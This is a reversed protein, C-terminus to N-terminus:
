DTGVAAPDPGGGSLSRTLETRRLTATRFDAEDRALGRRGLVPLVVQTLKAGVECARALASRVPGVRRKSYVTVKQGCTVVQYGHQKAIWRHAGLSWFFVHQGHHPFLYYWDPGQGLYKDTGVILFDPGCSLLAGVDEAPNAFHEFVEFSVIAGLGPGLEGEFGEAFVNQTFRDHLRGDYGLDRLLRCLLGCGGGFDLIPGRIGLVTALYHVLAQSWVSRNASGIGLMHFDPGYSKDLWTPTETQLAGCGSCQFYHCERSGLLIPKTFRFEAASGCLRCDIPLM